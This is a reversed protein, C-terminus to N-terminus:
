KGSGELSTEIKEVRVWGMKLWAEVDKELPKAFAGTSNTLDAHAPHVSKTKKM